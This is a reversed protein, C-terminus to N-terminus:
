QIIGLMKVAVNQEAGAGLITDTGTIGHDPGAAASARHRNLNRPNFCPDPSHTPSPSARDGGANGLNLAREPHPRGGKLSLEHNIKEGLLSIKNKYGSHSTNQLPLVHM